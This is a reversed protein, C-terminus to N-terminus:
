FQIELVASKNNKSACDSDLSSLVLWPYFGRRVSSGLVFKGETCPCFVMSIVVSLGVM